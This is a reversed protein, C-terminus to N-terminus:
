QTVKNRLKAVWIAIPKSVTPRFITKSSCCFMMEFVEKNAVIKDTFNAADVQVCINQLCRSKLKHTCQGFIENIFYSLSFTVNLGRYESVLTMHFINLRMLM